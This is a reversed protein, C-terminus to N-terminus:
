RLALVVGNVIAAKTLRALTGRVATPRMSDDRHILQVLAERRGLSLCQLGYRFAFPASTRGALRKGLYLGMPQATACGMRLTGTGPVTVEAADGIVYVEPHSVSRLYEDVRARGDPTVALGATAALPHPEMSAAWAVLDADLTGTDTRLGHATVATVPSHEHVQVGLRGLVRLVHARGKASFWGGVQGAAVIRVQWAPHAEALEAALEIGTAGGGVVAVTGPTPAEAIRRRIEVAREATLAHEAVGPVGQRDTRSGLAYVLTDYSLAEGNDLFVKRATLDLETVRAPVHTVQRGRIVRAIDPRHEPRGAAQEHQRVRHRFRTEPAVLTVRHRRGARTAASLGAYGAGIVVIHQQGTM